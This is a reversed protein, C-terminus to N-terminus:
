KNIIEQIHKKFHKLEELEEKLNAIHEEKVKLENQLDKWAKIINNKEFCEIAYFRFLTYKDENELAKDFVKGASKQYEEEITHYCFGEPAGCKKCKNREINHLLITEKNKGM